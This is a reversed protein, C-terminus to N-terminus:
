LSTYKKTAILDRIKVWIKKNIGSELLSSFKSGPHAFNQEDWLIKEENRWHSM